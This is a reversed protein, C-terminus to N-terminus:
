YYIENFSLLPISSISKMKKVLDKHFVKKLLGKKERELMAILDANVENIYLSLISFVDDSFLLDFELKKYTVKQKLIEKFWEMEQQADTDKKISVHVIKITANFTKAIETLKFIASIDEEEFDTAYVITKIEDLVANEPIALVPCPAKEFLKKTTSGMILNKIASKGKMGTVIISAYLEDAKSIIGAVVSSNDIAEIQINMSEFQNGLQSICFEKLKANKQKVSEKVPLLIYPDDINSIFTSLDFIHVVWLNAKTKTSLAYAYKLATIANDSFDTAHLITKM